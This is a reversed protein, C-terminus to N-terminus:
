RKWNYADMLTPRVLGGFRSWKSSRDGGGNPLRLLATYEPVFPVFSHQLHAVRLFSARVPGRPTSTEVTGETCMPWFSCARSSNRNQERQCVRETLTTFTPLLALLSFPHSLGARFEMRVFRPIGRTRNCNSKTTETIISNPCRTM